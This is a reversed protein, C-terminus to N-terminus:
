GEHPVRQRPRQTPQQRPKVTLVPLHEDAKLKGWIPRGAEIFHDWDKEVFAYLLCNLVDANGGQLMPYIEKSKVEVGPLIFEHGVGDFNLLISQAGVYNLYSEAQGAATM